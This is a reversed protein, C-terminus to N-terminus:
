KYKDLERLAQIGRVVVNDTPAGAAKSFSSYPHNLVQGGAHLIPLGGSHLGKLFSRSHGWGFGYYTAGCTVVVAKSPLQEYAVIFGKKNKCFPPNSADDYSYQLDKKTTSSNNDRFYNYDGRDTAGLWSNGGANRAKSLDNFSCYLLKPRTPGICNSKNKGEGLYGNAILLGLEVPQWDVYLYNNEYENTESVRNHHIPMRKYDTSYMALGTGMQKLNSMCLITNAKLKAANLAPMLMGALIAIVAIVVLLEVLTFRLLKHKKKPMLRQQKM